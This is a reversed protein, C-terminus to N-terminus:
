HAEIAMALANESRFQLRDNFLTVTIVKEHVVRVCRWLAPSFSLEETLIDQLIWNEM